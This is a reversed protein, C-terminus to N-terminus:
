SRVTVACLAQAVRDIQDDTLEAFMPLSLVEEALREAVPFSGEGLGLRAYAPQRHLPVPYHIGTSIGLDALARRVRNRERVRVVYLHYVARVDAAEIPTEIAPSGAFAARYRAAHRRRRITWSELSPLKANLIAAQLGDLRSCSGPMQHLYKETRGHDRLMTVTAAIDPDQTVVAGADGFAGLNKGPYFSYCVVDGWRAVSRGHYNAGHAQAADAIVWLDAEGALQLLPKMDAPHGYLHVPILARTRPTMAELVCAPDMTRTDESVDVFVVDAGVATIAEATAIFTNPVTIVEAGPGIGCALLALRLAETGNSVGVAHGVDCSAAFATEFPTVYKGGVFACDRIVAAMAADIESKLSRYQAQLDVFPVAVAEHV